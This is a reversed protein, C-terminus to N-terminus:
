RLAAQARRRRGGLKAPQEPEAGRLPAPIAGSRAVRVRLLLEAIGMAGRGVPVLLRRYDADRAGVAAVDHKVRGPGQALEGAELRCGRTASHRWNRAMIIM